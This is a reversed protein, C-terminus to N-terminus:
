KLPTFSFYDNNEIYWREYYIELFSNKFDQLHDELIKEKKEDSM